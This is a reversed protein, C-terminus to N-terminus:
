IKGRALLRVRERSCEEPNARMFELITMGESHAWRVWKSEIIADIQREGYGADRLEKIEANQIM